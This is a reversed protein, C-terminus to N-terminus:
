GGARLHDLQAAVSREAAPWVARDVDAYVEEVVERPTRAGAAVARRVQELREYRHTLYGDLVAHADDVVPGHGPLLRTVAGEAALDRLRRLSDLYPGLQGDPHAVVSTGRGLV